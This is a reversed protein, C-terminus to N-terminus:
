RRSTDQKAYALSFDGSPRNIKNAESDEQRGGGKREHQPVGNRRTSRLHWLNIKQGQERWREEREGKKKSELYNRSVVYTLM